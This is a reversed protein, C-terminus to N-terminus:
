QDGSADDVADTVAPPRVDSYLVTDSKTAPTTGSLPLREDSASGVVSGAAFAAAIAAAAIWWGLISHPWFATCERSAPSTPPSM